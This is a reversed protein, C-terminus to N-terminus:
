DEVRARERAAVSWALQHSWPGSRHLRGTTVSDGPRQARSAHEQQGCGGLVLLAVVGFWCVLASVAMARRSVLSLQGRVRGAGSPRGARELAAPAQGAHARRRREPQTRDANSWVGDRRRSSARAASRPWAGTLMQRAESVLQEDMDCAIERADHAHRYSSRVRRHQVGEGEDPGKWLEAEAGSNHRQLDDDCGPRRHHGAATRTATERGRTVCGPKRERCTTHCDGYPTRRHSPRPLTTRHAPSRWPSASTCCRRYSLARHSHQLLLQQLELQRSPTEAIPMARLANKQDNRGVPGHGFASAAARVVSSSTRASLPWCALRILFRIAWSRRERQFPARVGLQDGAIFEAADDLQEGFARLCEVGGARGHAALLVRAQASRTHGDFLDSRKLTLM